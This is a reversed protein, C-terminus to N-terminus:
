RRGQLCYCDGANQPPVGFASDPLRKFLYGAEKSAKRLKALEKDTLTRSAALNQPRVRAPASAAAELGGNAAVIRFSYNTPGSFLYGASFGPDLTAADLPYPMRSWTPSAQTHDLYEIWYGIAGYSPNWEIRAEAPGIQWTDVGTVAPPAGRGTHAPLAGGPAGAGVANVGAVAINYRHDTALGTYTYSTGTVTVTPLWAGTTQDQGYVEYKTAGPTPKWTVEVSTQGPILKVGETQPPTQPNAVGSAIPSAASEQTGHAATIRYEYTHGKILGGSLWNDGAIPYPLKHFPEGATVDRTHIYYGGAGYVRAWKLQIGEPVVQATAWGPATLTIGPVSSPVSGFASGIAFRTAFADAFAKAIKYEGVGNPHLGDYADSAHNFTSNVDVVHIPSRTTSLSTVVGPLKAKYDSIAPNLWSWGDLESRNVVNSVLIKLDPNAARAEAIFDRMSTITSDAGGYWAIDNFGLAVALYDPKYTQVMGRIKNKADAYHWGWLSFHDSDFNGDRYTASTDKAYMNFTGRYPGVFDVNLSNAAFHKALRYRWTYDGEHGNTISDGVVMIKGGNGTPTINVPESFYPGTAPATAQRGGVQVALGPRGITIQNWEQLTPTYTTTAVTVSKISQGNAPDVFQVEFRNNPHNSTGGAPSWSITPPSTTGVTVTKPGMGHAALVKQGAKRDQWNRGASLAKYAASFTTSGDATLKTIIDNMTGWAATEGSDADVQSDYLDWLVRQVALESDEGTPACTLAGAGSAANATEINYFFVVTSPNPPSISGDHYVTPSYNPIGAPVGQAQLAQLGYFSAWGESWALGLADQKTRSGQWANDCIGHSGGPSSVFGGEDAVVHGAEHALVTWDFADENCHDGGSSCILSSGGTYIVGGSMRSGTAPYIVLLKSQWDSRRISQYHAGVTRLADLLAFSRGTDTNNAIDVNVSSYANGPSWRYPGSAVYYPNSDNGTHIVGVENDTVVKLMYEGARFDM